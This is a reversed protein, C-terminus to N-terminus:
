SADKVTEELAVKDSVMIAHAGRLVDEALKPFLIGFGVRSIQNRIRKNHANLCNCHHTSSYKSAFGSGTGFALCPVTFLAKPAGQAEIHCIQGGDVVREFV